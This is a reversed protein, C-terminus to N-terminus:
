QLKTSGAPPAEQGNSIFDEIEAKQETSMKKWTAAFFSALRDDTPVGCVPLRWFGDVEARADRLISSDINLLRSVAVIRAETMPGRKGSEVDSVYARSVNLYRSVDGQSVRALVRYYRLKQAFVNDPM